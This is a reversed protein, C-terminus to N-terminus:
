FGCGLGLRVRPTERNRLVGWTHLFQVDYM